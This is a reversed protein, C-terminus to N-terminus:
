LVVGRRRAMQTFLQSFVVAVVVIAALILGTAIGEPRALLDVDSYNKYAWVPLMMPYTQGLLFPVEFAGFTYAFVILSAAGLSPSITPLTIYRFRQWRGAKLTRGVELLEVGSRRLVALIMLTIFPIEKWVYTLIISISWRDNVLLPFAASSDILGLNIIARSILGTPTLMFVMAVAIVLHPVTLPIQFIFHILRNKESLSVLFTAMVISVAAAIATSSLAVYLTLWLSQLFDPDGLVNAFHKLSLSQMGAAPLHGLGQILGLGLGGGFLIMVVVLAPAVM